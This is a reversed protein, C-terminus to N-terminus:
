VLWDKASTGAMCGRILAQATTGNYNDSGLVTLWVLWHGTTRITQKAQEMVAVLLGLDAAAAETLQAKVNSATIYARTRTEITRDVSENAKSGSVVDNLKALAILNKAANELPLGARAIIQVGFYPYRDGLRYLGRDVKLAGNLFAAKVDEIKVEACDFKQNKGQGSITRLASTLPFLSPDAVKDWDYNPWLYLPRIYCGSL